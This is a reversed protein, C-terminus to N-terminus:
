EILLQQVSRIKGKADLPMATEKSADAEAYAADLAIWLLCESWLLVM